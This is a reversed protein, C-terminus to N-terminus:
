AVPPADPPTVTWPQVSPGAKALVTRNRGGRKANYLAHDARRYAEAFPDRSATDVLAVGVSVTLGGDIEFRHEAVSRRLAEARDLGTPLDTGSLVVLFEEGGWRALGDSARVHERLLTAAEVLVADGAPHGYRDNVAKFHDLDLLLLCLPARDRRCRALELDFVVALARRSLLGTLADHDLLRRLEINRRELESQQRAIQEAQELRGVEGQWRLLGLMLGVVAAVAGNVSNSLAQTPDPQAALMTAAFAAAAATFVAVTRPVPLIVVLGIVVCALIFPTIATTTAQDFATIVLGGALISGLGLWQTARALRVSGAAQTARRALALTAAMLVLMVAHSGMVGTRWAAEVAGDPTHVAFIAIVMLNVVGALPAVVALRRANGLAIEGTVRPHAPKPRLRARWGSPGRPEESADLGRM